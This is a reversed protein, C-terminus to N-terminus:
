FPIAINMILGYIVYIYQKENKNIKSISVM